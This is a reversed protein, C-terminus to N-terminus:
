DIAKFDVTIEGIGGSIDIENSGNGYYKGNKVADVSIQGIGNEADICYDNESGLLTIQAQGIGCDIDSEGLIYGEFDVAGIGMDFDLDYVSSDTIRIQGVGGDIETNGSINLSSINVEGAGLTLKLKEASFREVSVRGAGTTIDAKDFVYGEPICIVVSLDSPYNKWFKKQESVTLKDGSEKVTLYKYNSEVTFEDGTKIELACAGLELKLSTIGNSVSYTQVEGVLSENGNLFATIASLGFFVAGLIRVAIFIALAIAVYKIAKQWSTM